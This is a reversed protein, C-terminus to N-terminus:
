HVSDVGDVCGDADFAGEFVGEVTFRTVGTAYEDSWFVDAGFRWPADRDGEEFVVFKVVCIVKRLAKLKVPRTTFDWSNNFLLVLKRFRFLNQALMVPM